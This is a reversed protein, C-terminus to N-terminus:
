CIYLLLSMDIVFHRWNLLNLYLILLWGKEIFHLHSKKHTYTKFLSVLKFNIKCYNNKSVLM